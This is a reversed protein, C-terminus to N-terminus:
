RHSVFEAIVPGFIMLYLSPIMFLAMPIIMKIPLQAAREEARMWRRDRSEKAVEILVGTLDTGLREAQVIASVTMSLSPENARDALANLAEERSRGLRIESLTSDLETRLPGTAADAAALMAANLSLGAQVTSTLLDLFEPLDRGILEKRAKIARSLAMSPVRWSILAILVGIGAALATNHLVFVLLIAVCIGGGYAGVGRLALSTPTVEYWGAENLRNRLNSKHETSVIQDILAARQSLSPERIRELKHIRTKLRNTSPIMSIAILFISLAGLVAIAAPILASV